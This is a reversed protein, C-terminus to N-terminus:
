HSLGSFDPGPIFGFRAVEKPESIQDKALLLHLRVADPSRTVRYASWRIRKPILRQKTSRCTFRMYQYLQEDSYRAVSDFDLHVTDICHIKGAM